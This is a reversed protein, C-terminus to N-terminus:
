RLAYRSKKYVDPNTNQEKFASDRAKLETHTNGTIWLKQNPFTRIIVTLPVDDICM